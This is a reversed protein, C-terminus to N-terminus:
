LDSVEKIVSEMRTQTDQRMTDSVAAYVDMTFASSYHGLQEQVAKVSCGAQLALIACSHRLDHFRTTEMGISSVARKFHKYVTHHKLHGGLEDTFVLNYANHWAPGAALQWKAQQRQQARLVKVVSAAIPITRAKGNKTEDLIVYEKSHPVKQLQRCVTVTGADFDIDQWQLGLIESQRMGSFLDVIFVREYPDGKIAELFDSISGDMLPKLGPKKAKPLKTNDAPNTQLVGCRVAQKLGSHLIGHM